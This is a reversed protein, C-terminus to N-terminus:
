DDMVEGKQGQDAGWIKELVAYHIYCAQKLAKHPTSGRGPLIWGKNDGYDPAILWCAFCDNREDYRLTVKYGSGLLDNLSNDLSEISWESQKVLAKQEPTLNINVFQAPKFPPPVNSPKKNTHPVYFNRTTKM